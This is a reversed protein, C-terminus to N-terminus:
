SYDPNALTHLELTAAESSELLYKLMELQGRKYAEQQIYKNPDSTDFDLTLKEEACLALQNQIHQVQLTTLVAGQLQEEETMSYSAFSNPILYPM